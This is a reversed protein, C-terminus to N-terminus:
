QHLQPLAKSMATYIIQSNELSDLFNIVAPPSRKEGKVAEGAEGLNGTAQNSLERSIVSNWLLVTKGSEPNV